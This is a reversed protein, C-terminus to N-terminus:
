HEYVQYLILAGNMANYNIPSPDALFAELTAKCTEANSLSQNDDVLADFTDESNSTDYINGIYANYIALLAINVNAM